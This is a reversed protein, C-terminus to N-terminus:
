ALFKEILREYIRVFDERGNSRNYFFCFPNPNVELICLGQPSAILDIAYFGLDLVSAVRATLARLPGLLEEAEVQVAQGGAQHLPNLDEGGSAGQKEYALLLEDRSAVIRYEPGAVYEQILLVNDLYGSNECLLQLRRCLTDRSHELFVGQALSSHYKKVLVPYSFREEVQAAIAAISPHTKYRNFRDDAFPNFVQLTAPVLLGARSFLEYQYGKDEALRAAVYDNFPHKNRLFYRPAGPRKLYLVHGNASAFEWELGRRQCALQLCELSELAADESVGERECPLDFFERAQAVLSLSGTVCLHDSPGLQAMLQRLARLGSPVIEVQMGEPARAALDEPRLARPHDPATLVVRLALPQLAQLLGAADHGRLAGVLFTWRPAMAGLGEALRAAAAPNHAGDLLVLPKEGATEFRGPWRHAAITQRATQADLEAGLLWSAAALALRANEAFTRPRGPLSAPDFPYSRAAGGPGEVKEPGAVLLEVQRQCSARRLYELVQPPQAATTFLPHGPRAVHFKDAAIEELTHGLVEVHDLGIATLIALRSDWANTADCRGGLGVEFAGYEVQARAFFHAALGTLAEFKSFPGLGEAAFGRTHDYLFTIGEAWADRSLLQGEVQIRERWTHLHPSTYLGTRHGARGLLAALLSSATGKGNTGGVILSVFRQQPDGLRALLARMRPLYHDLPGLAPRGSEWDPLTDLFRKSHFYDM